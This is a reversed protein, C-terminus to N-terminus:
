YLYTDLYEDIQSTSLSPISYTAQYLAPYKNVSSRTTSIMYLYKGNTEYVDYNSEFSKNEQMKATAQEPTDYEYITAQAISTLADEFFYLETKPTGSDTTGTFIVFDDSVLPVQSESIQPFDEENYSENSFVFMEPTIEQKSMFVEKMDSAQGYVLQTEMGKTYRIYDEYAVVKDALFPERKYDQLSLFRERSFMCVTAEGSKPQDLIRTIHAVLDGKEDFSLVHIYERYEMQSNGEDTRLIYVMYDDTLPVMKLDNNGTDAAVGKSYLDQLFSDAIATQAMLDNQAQQKDESEGLYSYYEEPMVSSNDDITFWDQHVEMTISSDIWITERYEIGELASFDVGGDEPLEAEIVIINDGFGATLQPVNEMIGDSDQTDFVTAQFENESTPDYSFQIGYRDAYLVGNYVASMEREVYEFLGEELTLGTIIITAHTADQITIYFNRGDTTEMEQDSQENTTAAQETENGKDSEEKVAHEQGCSSFLIMMIVSVLAVKFFKM